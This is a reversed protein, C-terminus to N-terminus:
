VITKYLKPLCAQFFRFISSAFKFRFISSACPSPLGFSSFLFVKLFVCYITDAVLEESQNSIEINTHCLYEGDSKLNDRIEDVTLLYVLKFGSKKIHSKERVYSPPRGNLNRTLVGCCVLFLIYANSTEM